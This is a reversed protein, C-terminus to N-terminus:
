KCNEDGGHEQVQEGFAGRPSVWAKSRIYADVRKAQPQLAPIIQIGTSGNGIVAIEKGAPDFSSDWRASHLLRGKFNHLGPIDPWKWKNLTGTGKVLM